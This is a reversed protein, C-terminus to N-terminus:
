TVESALDCFGMFNGVRERLISMRPAALFNYSTWNGKSWQAPLCNMQVGRQPCCGCSPGERTILESMDAPPWMQSCSRQVLSGFHSSAKGVEKGVSDALM